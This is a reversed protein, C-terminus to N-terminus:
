KKEIGENDYIGLHKDYEDFLESIIIEVPGKRLPTGMHSIEKIGQIYKFTNEPSAMDGGDSPWGTETVALELRKSGRVGLKTLAHIISDYKECFLNTYIKGKDTYENDDVFLAFDSKELYPYINFTLKSGSYVMFNIIEKLIPVIEPKFFSESPPNSGQICSTDLSTVIKVHGLDCEFLVEYCSRLSSLLKPAYKGINDNNLVNNGLVLFLNKGSIRNCIPEIYTKIWKKWDRISIFDENSLHMYINKIKKSVGFPIIISPNAHGFKVSEVDMLDTSLKKLSQKPTWSDGINVGLM